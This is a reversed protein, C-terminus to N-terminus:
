CGVMVSVIRRYPNIRTHQMAYVELKEDMKWIFIDYVTRTDLLHMINLVHVDYVSDQIPQKTQQSTRHEKWMKM